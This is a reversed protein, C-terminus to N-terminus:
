PKKSTKMRTIGSADMLVLLEPETRFWMMSNLAIKSFCSRFPPASRDDFATLFAVNAEPVSSARVLSLLAEKRMESIPGDTVVVECMYFKVPDTMDALILDPLEANLDFKLGVAKLDGTFQPFSKKDSSSIWLVAPAQLRRPAFDEILAKVVENSPGSSLRLRSGDPMEIFIDSAKARVGKALLAMRQLTAPDLNTDRWAKVAKELPKGTLKASFLDAFSKTLYYIPKSSTTAHGPLDRKKMIGIRLFENRMIDDRITERSNDAYWRKGEPRFGPRNSLTMWAQREEPSTKQAQEETFLYVHSPRMFREAGEVCGGYLSVFVVRASTLGVLLKRDPFEDPFILALREKIEEPTPLPPLSSTESTAPAKREAM